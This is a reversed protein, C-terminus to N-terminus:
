NGEGDPEFEGLVDEPLCDVLFMQIQGYEQATIAHTLTCDGRDWTLVVVPEPPGGRGDDFLDGAVKVLKALYQDGPPPPEGSRMEGRVDALTLVGGSKRQWKYFVAM